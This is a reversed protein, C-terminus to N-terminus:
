AASTALTWEVADIVPSVAAPELAHGLGPVIVLRCPEHAADRLERAAKTPIFRDATGHVIAFPAHVRPALVVPPEPSDWGPAIDVGLHRAAFRRGPRTRTLLAAFVARPNRPLTWRAPCSVTVLGAISADTAAYRLVAIAGMSAGVLVVTDARTRALTVAAAVDHRELDGLTCAGGSRGHGRSDYTTVDLDRQHLAEAVAVLQADDTSATFGHALVVAARPADVTAWSRAFLAVDDSTVFSAGPGSNPSV